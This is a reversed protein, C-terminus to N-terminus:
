ITGLGLYFREVGPQQVVAELPKMSGEASRYLMVKVGESNPYRVTEGNANWSPDNYRHNRFRGVNVSDADTICWPIYHACAWNGQADLASQLTLDYTMHRSPGSANHVIWDRIYLGGFGAEYPFENTPRTYAGRLNLPHVLEFTGRYHPGGIDASGIKGSYWGFRLGAASQRIGGSPNASFWREALVDANRCIQQKYNSKVGDPPPEAGEWQFDETWRVYYLSGTTFDVDLLQVYESHSTHSQSATKSFESPSVGLHSPLVYAGPLDFLNLPPMSNFAPDWIWEDQTIENRFKAVFAQISSGGEPYTITWGGNADQKTKGIGEGGPVTILRATTETSKFSASDDRTSFAAVPVGDILFSIDERGTTSSQSSTTDTGIGRSDRGYSAMYSGELRYSSSARVALRHETNGVYGIAIVRMTEPIDYEYFSTASTLPTMTAPGGNPDPIIQGGVQTAGRDITKTPANGLSEVALSASEVGAGPITRGLEDRAEDLDIHLVVSERAMYAVASARTGDERFFFRLKATPHGAYVNAIRDARAGNIQAVLLKGENDPHATILILHGNCVGIGICRSLDLTAHSRSFVNVAVRGDRCLAGPEFGFVVNGSEPYPTNYCYGTPLWVTGSSRITYTRGEWEVALTGGALTAHPDPFDPSHMVGDGDPKLAVQPYAGGPTGWPPNIPQGKADKFPEGWGTASLASIPTCYLGGMARVELRILDFPYGKFEITGAM